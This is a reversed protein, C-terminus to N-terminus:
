VMGYSMKADTLRKISSDDNRTAMHGQAESKAGGANAPAKPAPAAQAQVVVPAAKKREAEKAQTSAQELAVSTKSETGKVSEKALIARTDDLAKGSEAASISAHNAGAGSDAYTKGTRPDAFSRWVKALDIQAKEKDTSKGSLYDNVSQPVLTEKFIRDQLEPTFKEDGKLGMKKMSAKLTPTIIQYRGAAFVRDKDNGDREESSKIIEDLTMSSLDKKGSHKVKGGTGKTGANYSNYDGEGRSILNGLPSAAFSDTPVQTFASPANGARGINDRQAIGARANNDRQAAIKETTAADRKVARSPGGTHPIAAGPAREFAREGSPSPQFSSPQAEERKFLSRDDFPSRAPRVFIGKEEDMAAAVFAQLNALGGSVPDDNSGLIARQIEPKGTASIKAGANNAKDAAAAINQAGDEVKKQEDGGGFVGADKAILAADIGLAGATGAGPFTSAIGAAVEMGAGTWDGDMARKVAFGTRALLGLVPANKIINKLGIKGAAAGGAAGAAAGGGLGPIKSILGKGSELLSAGKSKAAALLGGGAGLVAGGIGKAVGPVKSILGKGAELISSGKAAVTSGAAKAADAGKSLMGKGAELATTAVGKGKTLLDAVTAKGSEALAAGKSLVNAALGKGAAVIGPVKGILSGGAAAIAGIGPVKSILSKGAGLALGAGKSLIGKVGGKMTDKLGAGFGKVKDLLGGLKGGGLAGVLGGLGLKSALRGVIGKLGNGLLGALGGALGGFGNGIQSLLEENLEKIRRIDTVMSEPIEAGGPGTTVRTFKSGELAREHAEKNADVTSPKGGQAAIEAKRARLKAMKEAMAPDASGTKAPEIQPAKKTSDKGVGDESKFKSGVGGLMKRGGELIPVNAAGSSKWVFGASASAAKKALGLISM